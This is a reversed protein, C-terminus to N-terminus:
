LLSNVAADGKINFVMHGYGPSHNFLVEMSCFAILWQLSISSHSISVEFSTRMINSLSVSFFLFNLFHGTSCAWTSIQTHIGFFM